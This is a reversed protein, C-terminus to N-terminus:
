GSNNGFVNRSDAMGVIGFVGGDESVKRLAILREQVSITDMGRVGLLHKKSAMVQHGPPSSNPNPALGIQIVCPVCIIRSSM